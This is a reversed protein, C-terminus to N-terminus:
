CPYRVMLHPKWCSHYPASPAASPTPSTLRMRCWILRWVPQFHVVVSYCIWVEIWLVTSSRHFISPQDYAAVQRLCRVQSCLLLAQKVDDVYAPQVALLPHLVSQQFISLNNPAYIASLDLIHPAHITWTNYLLDAFSTSSADLFKDISNGEESCLRSYCQILARAVEDVSFAATCDTHAEDALQVYDHPRKLFQLASDVSARCADDYVFISAFEAFPLTALLGFDEACARAAEESHQSFAAYTTTNETENLNDFPLFALFRMAHKLKVSRLWTPERNLMSMLTQNCSQPQSSRSPFSRPHQANRHKM